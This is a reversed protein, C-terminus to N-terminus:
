FRLARDTLDPLAKQWCGILIASCPSSTTIEFYPSGSTFSDDINRVTISAM